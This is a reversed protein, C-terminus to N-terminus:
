ILGLMMQIARATKAMPDNMRLAIVTARRVDSIGIVAGNIEIRFHETWHHNTPHFLKAAIGTNPDIADTKNSKHLSCNPCQLALNEVATRGGKSRPIIHDIHFASAQGTQGLHCYCCRGGDRAHVASRLSNPIDSKSM